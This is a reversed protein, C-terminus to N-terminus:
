NDYIYCGARSPHDEVLVGSKIRRLLWLVLFDGGAAVTFIIGFWLLWSNATIIGILSPIIGLIIGPAATGYRYARATVPEKCHAFPTLTKLKFGFQIKDWKQGGFYIWGLGHILEHLIIGIVFAIIFTILKTFDNFGRILDEKGWILYYPFAFVFFPIIILPISYLNAAALSISLDKKNLNITEM